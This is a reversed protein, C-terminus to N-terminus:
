RHEGRIHQHEGRVHREIHECQEQLRKEYLSWEAINSGCWLGFAFLWMQWYKVNDTM